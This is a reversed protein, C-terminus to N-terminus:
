HKFASHPLTSRSTSISAAWLVAHLRRAHLVDPMINCSYDSVWGQVLSLCVLSVLQQKLLEQLLAVLREKPGDEGTTPAAAPPPVGGGAAQLWAMWLVDVLASGCAAAVPGACRVGVM